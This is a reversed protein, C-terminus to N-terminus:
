ARRMKIQTQFAPFFVDGMIKRKKYPPRVQAIFASYASREQRLSARSQHKPNTGMHRSLTTTATSYVLNLSNDLQITVFYFTDRLQYAHWFVISEASTVYICKSCYNM